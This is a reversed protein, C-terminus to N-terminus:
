CIKGGQTKLEFYKKFDMFTFSAVILETSGNATNVEVKKSPLKTIIEQYFEYLNASKLNDINKLFKDLDMHQKIIKEIVRIKEIVVIKDRAVDELKRNLDEIIREYKGIESNISKNIELHLKDTQLSLQSLSEKMYEINNDKALVSDITSRIFESVDMNRSKSAQEIKKNQEESIRFTKIQNAMTITTTTTTTTIRLVTICLVYYQLM